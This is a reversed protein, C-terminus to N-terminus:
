RVLNLIRNVHFFSNWYIVFARGKIRTVNLFPDTWYRSDKSRDRNDGFLLVKGEPVLKPGFDRIGGSLWQSYREDFPQDNIYVVTGRVEIKDGPLGIVRKIINTDTEDQPTSPDDPQTFVVVDGRDPLGYQWLATDLFPFHLGYSMKNVLIHDGIELTPLMSESPIKFAEVVSARLLFAIGLFVAISKLLSIFESWATGHPASSPGGNREADQQSQPNFNLALMYLSALM